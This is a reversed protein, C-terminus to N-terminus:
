RQYYLQISNFQIFVDISFKCGDMAFVNNGFFPKLKKM